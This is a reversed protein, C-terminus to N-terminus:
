STSATTSSSGPSRIPGAASSRASRGGCLISSCTASSGTSSTRTAHPGRPPVAGAGGLDGLQRAPERRSRRQPLGASRAIEELTDGRRVLYKLGDTNPIDLATGPPITRADRIDNWSVITDLNLRFEARDALDFRGAADQLRQDEPRGFPGPEGRGIRPAAGGPDAHQVAGPGDGPAGASPARAPPSSRRRAPLPSLLFCFWCSDRARSALALSPDTRRACSPRDARLGPLGAQAAAGVARAYAVPAARRPRRSAGRNMWRVGAAHTKLRVPSAARKQVHQRQLVTIM